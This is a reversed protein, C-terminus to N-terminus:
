SYIFKMWILRIASRKQLIKKGNDSYNNDLIPCSMQMNNLSNFLLGEFYPLRPTQNYKSQYSKTQIYDNGDTEIVNLMGDCYIEPFEDNESEVESSDPIEQPVGGGVKGTHPTKKTKVGEYLGRVGEQREQHLYDFDLGDIIIDNIEIIQIDTFSKNNVISSLNNDNAWLFLNTDIEHKKEKNSIKCYKPWIKNVLSLFYSYDNYIKTTDM